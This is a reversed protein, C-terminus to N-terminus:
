CPRGAPIELLGSLTVVAGEGWFPMVTNNGSGCKLAGQKGKHEGVRTRGWGWAPICRAAQRYAKCFVQSHFLCTSFCIGGKGGCGADEPQQEASGSPMRVGPCRTPLARPVAQGCGPERLQRGCGVQWGGRDLSRTKKMKDRREATPHLSPAYQTVGLFMRPAHFDSRVHSTKYCLSNGARQTIRMRSVCRVPHKNRCLVRTGVHSRHQSLAFAM